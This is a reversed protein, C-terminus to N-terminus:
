LWGNSFSCVDNHLCVNPAVCFADFAATMPSSPVNGRLISTIAEMRLKQTWAVDTSLLGRSDSATESDMCKSEMPFLEHNEKMELSQLITVEITPFGMGETVLLTLVISLVSLALYV